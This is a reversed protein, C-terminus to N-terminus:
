HGRFSWRPLGGNLKQDAGNDSKSRNRRKVAYAALGVLAVTGFLFGTTKAAGGSTLSASQYSSTISSTAKHKCKEKKGGSYVKVEIDAMGFFMNMMSTDAGSLLASLDLVVTGSAAGCAAGSNDVYDCLVISDNYVTTKGIKAKFTATTTADWDGNVTFTAIGPNATDFELDTIVTGDCDFNSM